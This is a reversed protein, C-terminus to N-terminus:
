GRRRMAGACFDEGAKMGSEKELIERAMGDTTGPTVTSEIVVLTGPTMYRGAQRLGETLASFDPELDKPNKFPTQIALTVADVKSILSFDPTAFSSKDKVVRAILEELGPEEGKLPSKGDNLVDIKHGSTASRRQFGYVLGYHDAFLMASPIGVYGMGIVGVRNIKGREEILRLLRHGMSDVM